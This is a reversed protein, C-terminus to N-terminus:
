PQGGFLEFYIDQSSANLRHIEEDITKVSFGAAEVPLPQGGTLGFLYAGVREPALTEDEAYGYKAKLAGSRDASLMILNNIERIIYDSHTSVM